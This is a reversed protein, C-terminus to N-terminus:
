CIPKLLKYTDNPLSILYYLYSDAPIWLMGLM